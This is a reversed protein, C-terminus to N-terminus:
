QRAAARMAEIPPERGTWIRLSAAGQHVLIELGDVVSAGKSAAIEALPTPRSGYVLDVVIHEETISDADLPLGKLGRASEGPENAEALGVTTANVILEYAAADVETVSKAGLEHALAQARATTRNWVGVSAGARRLAWVCARASGGAGLVLARAGAVDGLAELLGTADTNEAQVGGGAFSLTNAAGIAGAAQSVSDALELAALKHPVTVNVGAFGEGPLSRVLAAFGEPAVEIAEYTWEGALGLERLAANQM